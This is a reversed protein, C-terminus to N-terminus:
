GHLDRVGHWVACVRNRHCGWAPGRGDGRHDEAQGDEAGAAGPGARQQDQARRHAAPGRAEPLNKRWGSTRDHPQRLLTADATRLLPAAARGARRSVGPRRGGPRLSGGTRRAVGDTDRARVTRWVSWVAGAAAREGLFGGTDYDCDREDQKRWSASDFLAFAAVTLTAAPM